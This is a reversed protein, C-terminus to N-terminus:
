VMPNPNPKNQGADRVEPVICTSPNDYTNTIKTFYRNGILSRIVSVTCGRCEPLQFNVAKTDVEGAKFEVSMKAGAQNCRPQLTYTIRDEEM